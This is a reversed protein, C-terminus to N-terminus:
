ACILCKIHLLHLLRLLDKFPSSLFLESPFRSVLIRSLVLGPMYGALIPVFATAISWTLVGIRLVKRFCFPSLFSVVRTWFSFQFKLVENLNRLLFKIDFLKYIQNVKGHNYPIYDELFELLIAM